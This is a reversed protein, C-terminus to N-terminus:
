YGHKEFSEFFYFEYKNQLKAHLEEISEFYEKNIDKFILIKKKRFM